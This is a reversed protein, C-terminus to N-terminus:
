KVLMKDHVYYAWQQRHQCKSWLVRVNQKIDYNYLSFSIYHNYSVIKNLANRHSYMSKKMRRVHNRSYKSKMYLWLTLVDYIQWKRWWGMIIITNEYNHTCVLYVAICTNLSCYINLLFLCSNSLHVDYM